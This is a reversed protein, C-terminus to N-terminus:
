VGIEQDHSCSAPMHIRIRGRTGGLTFPAELYCLLIYYLLSVVFYSGFVILVVFYISSVLGYHDMVRYMVYSWGAVTTCQFTTIMSLAINDFGATVSALRADSYQVSFLMFGTALFAHTWEQPKVHFFGTRLNHM